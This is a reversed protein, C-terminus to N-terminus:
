SNKSVNQVYSIDKKEATVQIIRVQMSLLHFDNTAEAVATPIRNVPLAFEIDKIGLLCM